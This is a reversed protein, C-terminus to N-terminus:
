VSSVKLGNVGNTIDDTKPGNQYDRIIEELMGASAAVFGLYPRSPDLVRSLYEPHFQVGVFWPHDKIEIVEMRVGAEDKGVFSLGGKELTDIYDPNVEYRHRHRELIESKGAYLARLRSWESGSQFLTPRLGLRMSAGMTTKDVEPMFMILKNQAEGNFEESTADKIGCVNRAYEIVAIQMGLCVGLYPKKNERAWTAAAIMGETARQGFGGPVLIGSAKVVEHWANHFKAPDSQQCKPELHDSDVWRIDLKKRCRMTAHELAKIVSLYSDQLEVYKGVLAITVPDHYRTDHGTLSQWQAWTHNGKQLMQSSINAQELALFQRVMPILKQQELLMPVQYISPMDRVVLVQENEVQCFHAIKEVASADLERECRCAILDPILGNSRVAKIAQQTPKTKQEGHIVPVYSVHIQMFNNKGARRRLQSMAEVFPMSEIDGVTGGLEIICVDPEEGSDDVPIRAVRQIWEQIADTIHPVVQVTKGLYDGKREREIVHQYIKGTTINNDRTLTINLYREYNGLDLDVEGGDSLVFVEGHEKPNMTGADVNLYPDVKISSVKLGITKLLLGTSSAIIGKGVGSIVGGSVLVYKM